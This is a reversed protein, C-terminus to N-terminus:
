LVQNLGSVDFKVSLDDDLKLLSQNSLQIVCAHYIITGNDVQNESNNSNNNNSFILPTNGSIISQDNIM